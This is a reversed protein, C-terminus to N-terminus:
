STLESVVDDGQQEGRQEHGGADNADEAHDEDGYMESGHLAVAHAGLRGASEMRVDAELVVREVGPAEHSTETVSVQKSRRVAFGPAKAYGHLGVDLRERDAQGVLGVFPPRGGKGAQV